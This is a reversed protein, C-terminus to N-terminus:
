EKKFFYIGPILLQYEITSKHWRKTQPETRTSQRAPAWLCWFRPWRFHMKGRYSFHRGKSFRIIIHAGISRLLNRQGDTRREIKNRKEEREKTRKKKNELKREKKREEKKNEKKKRKAKRKEKKRIVKREKGREKIILIWKQKLYFLLCQPEKSRRVWSRGGWGAWVWKQHKQEKLYYM